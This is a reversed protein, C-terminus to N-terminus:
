QSNLFIWCIKKIFEPLGKAVIDFKNEELNCSIFIESIDYIFDEPKNLKILYENNITSISNTESIQEIEEKLQM